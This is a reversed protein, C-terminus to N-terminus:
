RVQDMASRSACSGHVFEQRFRHGSVPPSTVYVDLPDDETGEEGCYECTEPYDDMDLDDQPDPDMTSLPFRGEEEYWVRDAEENWHEYDSRAM